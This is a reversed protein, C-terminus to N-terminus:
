SLLSKFYQAELRPNDAKTIASGIAIGQPKLSLIQHINERNIKDTIYLPLQTNGQISQWQSSLEAPDFTSSPNHILLLDIGLQKADLTFQGANHIDIIDLVLDIDLKKAEDSAKKTNNQSIGALISILSAGAQAFMSIASQGSETIKANAFIPKQSFSSKFQKIANIGEKYILLPGVEIIDAYDATKRAIDLATDLDTFNYSIQLKM